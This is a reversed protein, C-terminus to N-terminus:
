EWRIAGDLNEAKRQAVDLEDVSWSPFRRFYITSDRHRTAGIHRYGITWVFAAGVAIQDQEEPSLESNSFTAQQPPLEGHSDILRTTFSERDAEIVVGDWKQLLTFRIAEDELSPLVRPIRMLRSERLMTEGSEKSQIVTPQADRSLLSVDTVTRVRPQNPSCLHSDDAMSTSTVHTTTSIM